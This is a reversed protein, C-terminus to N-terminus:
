VGHLCPGGSRATGVYTQGLIVLQPMKVVGAVESGVWDRRGASSVGWGGAPPLGSLGAEGTAEGLEPTTWTEEPAVREGKPMKKSAM